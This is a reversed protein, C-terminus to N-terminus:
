DTPTPTLARLRRMLPTSELWEIPSLDTVAPAGFHQSLLDGNVKGRLVDGLATVAGRVAANVHYYTVHRHLFVIVNWRYEDSMEELLFPEGKVNVWYVDQEFVRNDMNGEGFQGFATFPLEGPWLDVDSPVPSPLFPGAPATAYTPIAAM